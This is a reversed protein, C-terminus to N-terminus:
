PHSLLSQLDLLSQRAQRLALRVHPQRPLRDPLFNHLNVALSGRPAQLEAQLEALERVLSFFAVALPGGGGGNVEAWTVPPSPSPNPPPPSAAGGELRNALVQTLPL